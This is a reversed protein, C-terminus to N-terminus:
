AAAQQRDLAAVCRARLIPNETHMAMVELEDLALHKDRAKRARRVDTAIKWFAQVEIQSFSPKLM